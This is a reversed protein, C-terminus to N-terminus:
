GWLREGWFVRKMWVNIGGERGDGGWIGECGDGGGYVKVSLGEGYVTRGM